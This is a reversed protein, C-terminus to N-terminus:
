ATAFRSPSFRITKIKNFYFNSRLTICYSSLLFEEVNDNGDSKKQKTQKRSDNELYSGLGNVACINGM